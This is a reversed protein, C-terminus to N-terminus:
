KLGIEVIRWTITGDEDAGDDYTIRFDGVRIRAYGGRSRWDDVDRNEQGNQLNEIAEDIAPLFKAQIKQYQKQAKKSWRVPRAELTRPTGMKVVTFCRPLWLM